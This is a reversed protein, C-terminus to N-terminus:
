EGNAADKSGHVALTELRDVRWALDDILELLLVIILAVGAAMIVLRFRDDM